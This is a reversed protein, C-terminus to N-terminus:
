AEEEEGRPPEPLRALVTEGGRARDGKRCTVEWHPPVVLDVRSGFRILGIRDGREVRDGEEPDTVVRRAVFGAIQRVLIKEEGVAMGLSAQENDESARAKWAMAYGGAKYSRHEVVGSLPARQVHVDFISLFISIRLAAGEMYLPEDVDAIQVVLGDGPAVVARSDEPPTRPPDRFFFLTFATLLALVGAGGYLVRSWFVPSGPWASSAGAPGLAGLVMGALLLLITLAVGVLLFPRGEPAMRM